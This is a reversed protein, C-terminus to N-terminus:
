KKILHEHPPSTIAALPFILRYGNCHLALLMANLSADRQGHRGLQLKLAFVKTQLFVKRFKVWGVGALQCSFEM